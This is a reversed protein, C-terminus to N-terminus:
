LKLSNEVVEFILKGATKPMFLSPLAPCLIYKINSAQGSLCKISALEFLTAGSQFSKDGEFLLAPVTNIVVSYDPLKENLIALDFAKDCFLRSLALEKPNRMVCDFKVGLKNLMTWLAKAVRGSGIILIKEEFISRNTQEILKSLFGEATLKANGVVFSEVEMMNHYILKNTQSKLEPPMNGGFVISGKPLAELINQNWKYAPSFVCIDGSSIKTTNEFVDFIKAGEGSLFHDKILRSVEQLRNDKLDLFYNM